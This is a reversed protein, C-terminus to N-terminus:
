LPQPIERKPNLRTVGEKLAMLRFSVKGFQSRVTATYPNKLGEREPVRNGAKNERPQFRAKRATGGKEGVYRV